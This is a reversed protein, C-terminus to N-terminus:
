KGGRRFSLEAKDLLSIIWPIRGGGGGRWIGGLRRLTVDSSEFVNLRATYM